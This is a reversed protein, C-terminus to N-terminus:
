KRIINPSAPAVHPPPPEGRLVVGSARVPVEHLFDMLTRLHKNIAILENPREEEPLERALAVSTMLYQTSVLRDLSNQMQEQFVRNQRFFLLAAAESVIGAAASVTGLITQNAFFAILIGALIVLFGVIAITISALTSTRSQSLNESYYTNLVQFNQVLLRSLNDVSEPVVSSRISAEADAQYKTVTEGYSLFLRLAGYAIIGMAALFSLVPSANMMMDFFQDSM